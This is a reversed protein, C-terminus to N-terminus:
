GIPSVPAFFRKWMRSEGGFGLWGIGITPVILVGVPVSMLWPPVHADPGHGPGEEEFHHGASQATGALEPHRAGRCAYIAVVETAPEVHHGPVLHGAGQEGDVQGLQRGRDGPHSPWIKRCGNAGAAPRAASGGQGIYIAPRLPPTTVVTRVAADATSAKPAPKDTTREHRPPRM